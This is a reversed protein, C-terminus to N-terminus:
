ASKRRSRVHSGDTVVNVRHKTVTERTVSKLIRPSKTKQNENNHNQSAPLTHSKDEEKVKEQIWKGDKGYFGPQKGGHGVSTRKSTAKDKM